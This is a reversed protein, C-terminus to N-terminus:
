FTRWPINLHPFRKLEWEQKIDRIMELFPYHVEYNLERKAKSIDYLFTHPIDPKEPRYIIESRRAPSSFVEVIGKAEDEISTRIGSAINYLGHASTSDLAAIYASTVDKVYVFDHGRHPDGWIEIPNGALANRIFVIFRPVKLQGDLYIETKQGYGYVGPLRLTIGVIGYAERYREILNIAAIKSIIYVAHDSKFNINIEDQETIPRGVEWLGAVDAHSSGFIVKKVQNIRSFELVNLAGITNVDFYRQPPFGDDRVPNTVSLLFIADINHKPLKEFDEKKSVDLQVFPIRNSTFYEANQNRYGTALVERGQSLLADVLYTGIFSTAGMVIIM